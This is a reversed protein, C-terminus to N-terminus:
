GTTRPRYTKACLDIFARMARSVPSSRRYALLLQRKAWDDSLPACLVDTGALLHLSTARLFGIGFGAEVMRVLAPFTEVNVRKGLTTGARAAAASLLRDLAGSHHIGVVEYGMVTDFGIPQNSGLQASLPHDPAALVYVPDDEFVKTELRSFENNDAVLALDAIGDDLAALAEAASMEQIELAFNPNEAAYVALLEPLRGSLPSSTCALRLSGRRGTAFDAMAADLDAIERLVTRCREVYVQGAPTARVGQPSRDFLSVGLRAELDSIRRSVASPAINQRDAARGIAGCEALVVVLRATMADFHHM